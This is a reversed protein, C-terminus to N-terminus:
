PVVYGGWWGCRGLRGALALKPAHGSLFLHEGEEFFCCL